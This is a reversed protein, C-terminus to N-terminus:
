YTYGIYNALIYQLNTLIRQLNLSHESIVLILVVMPWFPYNIHLQALAIDAM